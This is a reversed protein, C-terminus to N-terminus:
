KWSPRFRGDLARFMSTSQHRVTAEPIGPNNGKTDSGCCNLIAWLYDAEEQTELVISVPKFAPKVEERGVKM